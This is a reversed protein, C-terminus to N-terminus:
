TSISYYSPPDSYEPPLDVHRRASICTRRPSLPSGSQKKDNRFLSDSPNPPSYRFSDHLSLSSQTPTTDLQVNLEGRSITTLQGNSNCVVSRNPPINVRGAESVIRPSRHSRLAHQPRGVLPPYSTVALRQQTLNTTKTQYPNNVKQNFKDVLPVRSPLGSFCIFKTLSQM